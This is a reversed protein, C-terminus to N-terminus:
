LSRWTRNCNGLHVFLLLPIMLSLLIWVPACKRSFAGFLFKSREGYYRRVVLIAAITPSLGGVTMMVSLMIPDEPIIGYSLVWPLFCVGGILLTVVYFIGAKKDEDRM